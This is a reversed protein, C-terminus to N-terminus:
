VEARRLAGARRWAVGLLSLLGTGLLMLSSPEPVGGGSSGVLTGSYPVAGTDLTSQSSADHAGFEVSGSFTNGITDSSPFAFEAIPGSYITLATTTPNSFIFAEFAPDFSLSVLDTTVPVFGNFTLSVSFGSLSDAVSQTLTGDITFGQGPSINFINPSLTLSM